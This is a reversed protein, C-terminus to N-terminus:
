VGEKKGLCQYQYQARVNDKKRKQYVFAGVGIVCAGVLVGAVAGNARNWSDEEEQSPEVPEDEARYNFPLITHQNSTPPASDYTDDNSPTSQITPDLEPYSVAEPPAPVVNNPQSNYDNLQPVNEPNESVTNPPPSQNEQTFSGDDSTEFAPTDIYAPPFPSPSSPVLTNEQSVNNGEEKTEVTPPLSTNEQVLDENSSEKTEAAPPDANSLPISTNEQSIGDMDRTDLVSNDDISPSPSTLSNNDGNTEVTPPLSTNEQVTVGIGREKTEAAPPDANSVSVSTNEGSLSDMDGTDVVSNDVVSSSPSTPSNNDGKTQITPDANVSPSSALQQDLFNQEGKTQLDTPETSKNESESAPPAYKETSDTSISYNVLLSLVIFLSFCVKFAQKLM